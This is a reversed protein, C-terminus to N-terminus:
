DWAMGPIEEGKVDIDLRGEKLRRPFMCTAVGCGGKLRSRIFEMLRVGVLSVAVM